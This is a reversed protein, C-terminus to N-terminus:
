RRSTGSDGVVGMAVANRLREALDCTALAYNISPNYRAIVHLNQFGVRYQVTEQLGAAVLVARTDGPVKQDIRVGRAELGSVTDNLALHGSAVPQANPALHADVVVPADRQWRHEVLFNALSAFIDDWNAWLDIRAANSRHVAYRRYSSPMFQLAGLAGGYSGRTALPDFNSDRALLLFERLESRYLEGRPAYDFAFTMLTDLERYSGMVQGYNTEMGLIAVLYEAAVGSQAAVAELQAKHAQWFAVGRAIRGPTVFRARYEWWALAKEAPHDMAETLEPRARAAGLLAILDARSFGDRRVELDVFSAIEPRELDFGNRDWEVPSGLSPAAASYGGSALLTCAFLLVRAHFGQRSM